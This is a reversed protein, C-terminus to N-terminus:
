YQETKKKIIRRGGLDVRVSVSEGWVVSKRDKTLSHVVIDAGPEIPRCLYPTAMTNDVILPVGAKHAVEAIAAIDTVVGGPNALSEIFIARTNEDIAAAFAAPDDADVFRSEWGM